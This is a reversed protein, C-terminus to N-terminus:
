LLDFVWGVGLAELRQRQPVGNLPDWGMLEYFTTLAAEVQDPPLYNGASPGAEFPQSFVPPLVDDRRSFGERANFARAMTYAREGARLLEEEQIDWGTVAQVLEVLRPRDYTFFVFGCFGIMNMVVSWPIEIAALRMKEPGLDHIPLVKTIGYRALPKISEESLYDADHFNHNHDAGTPSVAYGIGLGYKIRPEHMPVELGKVHAAFQEAGRGIHAAARRSGQSLLYGFGERKGMWEVAKVMAEANGFRLELGGTDELTLLGREFCDMAWAVTVGASITDLGYANCLQNAYAVAALNDVGCMSGFSGITEYEPGGYVADVQFPAEQVEVVRKCHVPCAFCTDREKLITETMREGSIAEWGDFTGKHFNFSPLGGSLQHNQVGGATGVHHLSNAWTNPYEKAYWKALRTVAAPDAVVPKGTGRAAVAKLKKSGMVAGLGTRAAARNIDHMVAALPALREGAPGIQAVRVRHDGLEEHLIAQTRATLNGWLHAAPRIEVQDNTIWLYVPEAAQGEIIIVDYGTRALEAGFYGGVDAEGFGGTLPSKGGVASRGSGGVAAGTVAGNAFILKNEPGLPDIGPQLEKLLYYAIFGWGGIYLRRFADDWEEVKWSLDNLNIRLTKGM